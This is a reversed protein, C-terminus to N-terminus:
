LNSRIDYYYCANTKSHAVAKILACKRIASKPVVDGVNETQHSHCNFDYVRWVHVRKQEVIMIQFLSRSTTRIINYALAAIVRRQSITISRVCVRLEQTWENFHIFWKPFENQRWTAGIEKRDLCPLNPVTIGHDFQLREIQFNFHMAAYHQSM